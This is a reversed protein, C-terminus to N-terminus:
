GRPPRNEPEEGRPPGSRPRPRDLPNGPALAELEREFDRIHAEMSGPQRSRMWLIGCGVLSLVVAIGLFMLANM